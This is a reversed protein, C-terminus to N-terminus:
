RIKGNWNNQTASFIMDYRDVSIDPYEGKTGSARVFGLDMFFNFTLLQLEKRVNRAQYKVNGITVNKTYVTVRYGINDAHEYRNTTTSRINQSNNIESIVITPFSAFSQPTEPVIKLTDKFISKNLMYNSFSKIIKTELDEVM